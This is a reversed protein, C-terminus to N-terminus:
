IKLLDTIDIEARIGEKQLDVVVVVKDKLIAFQNDFDTYSKIRHNVKKNKLDKINDLLIQELTKNEM